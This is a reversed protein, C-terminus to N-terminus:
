FRDPRVSKPLFVQWFQDGRVVKAALIPGPPGTKAALIPGGRGFDTGWPPSIKAFNDALIPGGM